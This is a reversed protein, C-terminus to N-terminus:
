SKQRFMQDFWAVSALTLGFLLHIPLALGSPLQLAFIETFAQVFLNFIFIWAFVGWVLGYGLLGKVTRVAGTFHAFVVGLVACLFLHTFLGVALVSGKAAFETAGAGLLPVAAVKIPFLADVQAVKASIMAALLMVLGSLLGGALGAMWRVPDRRLWVEVINEDLLEAHHSKM